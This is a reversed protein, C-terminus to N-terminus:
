GRRSQRRKRFDDVSLEADPRGSPGGAFEGGSPASSGPASVPAKLKPNATVADRIATAVQEQFDGSSPDLGHVKKLFSRSDLLADPDGEYEAARRFVALEVQTARHQEQASTLEKTLREPDPPEPAEDSSLGMVRAFGDLFTQLKEETTQRAATEEQARKRYDGEGKRADKILKQAWPPLDAVKEAAALASALDDDGDSDTDDEDTTDEDDGDPLRRDAAATVADDDPADSEDDDLNLAAFLSEGDTSDSVDAGPTTQEDDM